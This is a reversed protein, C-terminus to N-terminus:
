DGLVDASFRIKDGSNAGHLWVKRLDIVGEKGNPASDSYAGGPGSSDAAALEATIDDDDPTSSPVRGVQVGDLVYGIGSGGTAMQALVRTAYVPPSLAEPASSTGTVVNIPSAGVTITKNVRM